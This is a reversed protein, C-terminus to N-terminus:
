LAVKKPTDTYAFGKSSVNMMHGGNPVNSASTTTVPATRDDFNFETKPQIAHPPSNDPYELKNKHSWDSSPKQPYSHCPRSLSSNASYAGNEPNQQYNRRRRSRRRGNHWKMIVFLVVGVASIVALGLTMNRLDGIYNTMRHMDDAVQMMKPVGKHFIDNFDPLPYRPPEMMPQPEPAPNSNSNGM